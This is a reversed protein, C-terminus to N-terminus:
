KSAKVPKVAKLAALLMVEELSCERISQQEGWWWAKEGRLVTSPVHNNHWVYPMFMINLLYVVLM